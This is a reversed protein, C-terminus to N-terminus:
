NAAPVVSSRRIYFGSSLKYKKTQKKSVAQSLIFGKVLPETKTYTETETETETKTKPKVPWHGPELPETLVRSGRACSNNCIARLIGRETPRKKGSFLCVSLYYCSVAYLTESLPAAALLILLPICLLHLLDSSWM